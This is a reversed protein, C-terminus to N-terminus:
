QSILGPIQLHRLGIIAWYFEQNGGAVCEIGGEGPRGYIYEGAGGDM